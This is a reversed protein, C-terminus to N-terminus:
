RQSGDGRPFRRRMKGSAAHASWGGGRAGHRLHLQAPTFKVDVALLSISAIRQPTETASQTANAARMLVPSILRTFVKIRTLNITEIATRSTLHIKRSPWCSNQLVEVLDAVLSRLRNGGSQLVVAAYLRKPKYSPNQPHDNTSFERKSKRRRAHNGVHSKCRLLWTPSSPAFAIAAARCCLLLMCVNQSTLHIKHITKLASNANAKEDAHTIALM